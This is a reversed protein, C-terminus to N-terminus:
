VFVGRASEQREHAYSLADDARWAEILELVEDTADTARGVTGGAFEICAVNFGNNPTDRVYEAATAIDEIVDEHHFFGLRYDYVTVVYIKPPLQM